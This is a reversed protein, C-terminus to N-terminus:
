LTVSMARAILSLDDQTIEVLGRRMVMGWNNTSRSFSLESLLPQIPAEQASALYAVSRRFPHFESTQAYQYIEEDVVRGIATFARLQEGDPYSTRPSYFILWDQAALRDLLTRKGHGLQAIGLEVGRQVHDRSVVAIWARPFTDADM